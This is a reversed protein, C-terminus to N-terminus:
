DRACPREEAEARRFLFVALLYKGIRTGDESQLAVGGRLPVAAAEMHAHATGHEAGQEGASLCYVLAKGLPCPRAAPLEEGRQKLRPRQTVAASNERLSLHDSRSRPLWTM